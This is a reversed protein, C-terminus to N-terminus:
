IEGNQQGFFLENALVNGRYNEWVPSPFTGVLEVPQDMGM